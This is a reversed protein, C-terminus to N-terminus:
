LSRWFKDYQWFLWGMLSCVIVASVDFDSQWILMACIIALWLHFPATPNRM